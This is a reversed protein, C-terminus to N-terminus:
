VKSRQGFLQVRSKHIAEKARLRERSPEEREQWRRERVEEMVEPQHEDMWKDYYRPPKAERGEIVVFDRPYVDRWFREIWRRGVAPRLSMRAFEPAVSVIEGTEDDVRLLHNPNELRDVKKRVYGAVYSASAMSVTGLESMGHPWLRELEPSQFVGHRRTDPHPVRDEFPVGFLIVHYHPRLGLEGYEGCGFFSVTGPKRGVRLRKMFASLDEPVLSGNEPVTEYTLTLFWAYEHCQREHM